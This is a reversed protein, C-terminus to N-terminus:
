PTRKRFRIEGTAINVAVLASLTVGFVLWSGMVAGVAAAVLVSGNFFARNLKTRAAM